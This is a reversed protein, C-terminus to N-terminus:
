GIATGWDSTRIYPRTLRDVHCIHLSRCAANSSSPKAPVGTVGTRTRGGSTCCRASCQGARAGGCWTPLQGCLRPPSQGSRIWRRRLRPATLRTCTSTPTMDAAIGICVRIAIQLHTHLRAAFRVRTSHGRSCHTGHDQFGAVREVHWAWLLGTPLRQYESAAHRAAFTGFLWRIWWLAGATAEGNRRGCGSCFHPCGDDHLGCRSSCRVSACLRSAAHRRAALPAPLRRSRRYTAGASLLGRTDLFQLPVLAAPKDPKPHSTHFRQVPIGSCTCCPLM